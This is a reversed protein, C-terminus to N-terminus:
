DPLKDGVVKTYDEVLLCDSALFCAVLYRGKSLVTNYRGGKDKFCLVTYFPEKLSEGLSLRLRVYGERAKRAEEETPYKVVMLKTPPEGSALIYEAVVVDTEDGLGFVNEEIFEDSIQINDLIIKKHFFQIREHLLGEKPLYRLLEPPLSRGPPLRDIIAEAIAGVESLRVAPSGPELRIYYRGKWIWLYNEHISAHDGLVLESGERDKTYVGFADDTSGFQWIEVLIRMDNHRYEAVAVQQFSYSLYPEAGGDIYEYLGSEGTYAIPRVKVEWAGVREPFVQKIKYGEYSSEVPVQPQVGEVLIAARGMVPCAYECFGCGNCVEERVFPRRIERGQEDVYTNFHIAKTPVPCVEECVGCNVDKWGRALEPLGAYGVWPICRSQDIRAKGIALRQKVPLEVPRIAESPCVNSCLTCTYDCHGIRPILRPTWAGELGAELLTPHLGNTKCVRMCEGCRVCRALFEGEELAGPPRIMQHGKGLKQPFNFRLAPVMAVSSFCATILGRRSLDVEQLKPLWPGRFRIAGSPCLEQCDMCLICEGALTSKGGETICGMRCEKQCIGCVQCGKRVRRQFYAGISGLAFIAGLPCLNRCWYRRYVIGASIIALFVILFATHNHFFPERLVFLVQNSFGHAPSALGGLIPIGQLFNFFGGLLTVLYPHVLITYTNTALSLPDFWGIMQRSIFLSLLLFALLYYKIRRGDYLRREKERQRKFLKDTLDITTGFPCVWGCFFRGMVVTALVLIVAPWYQSILERSAISTGLASLPSLRLFADAPVNRSTFPDAYVLLVLFIALSIAQAWKRLNYARFPSKKDQLM